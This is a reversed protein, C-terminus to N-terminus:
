KDHCTYCLSSSENSKRLFPKLKGDGPPNGAGPTYNIHPDHCTLCEVMYKTGDDSLWLPLTGNGVSKGGPDAAKIGTSDNAASEAYPFSIPHDDTLDGRPTVDSGGWGSGDLAAGINPGWNGYNMCAEDKANCWIDGIEDVETTYTIVQNANAMSNIATGGDHCSMCMKSVSSPAVPKTTFNLTPSATYLMFTVGSSDPRNWLFRKGPVSNHPTHCFICLENENDSPIAGAPLQLNSFNHNTFRVGHPPGAIVVSVFGFLCAMAFFITMKSWSCRSM